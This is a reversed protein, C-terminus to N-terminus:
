PHSNPHNSHHTVFEAIQICISISCCLDMLHRVLFPPQLLFETRSINKSPIKKKTNKQGLARGTYSFRDKLGLRLSVKRMRKPVQLLSLLCSLHEGHLDTLNTQAFGVPSQGCFFFRRQFTASHAPGFM